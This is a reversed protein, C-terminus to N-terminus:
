SVNYYRRTRWYKRAVAFWCVDRKTIWRAVLHVTVGVVLVEWRFSARFIAATLTGNVVAVVHPVGGLLVPTIM